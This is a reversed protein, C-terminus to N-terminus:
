FFEDWDPRGLSNLRVAVVVVAGMELCSWAPAGVDACSACAGVATVVAANFPSDVAAGVAAAGDGAGKVPSGDAAGTISGAGCGVVAGDLAGETNADFVDGYESTHM